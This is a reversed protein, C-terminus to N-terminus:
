RARACLIPGLLNVELQEQIRERTTAVLLDPRNVAANNVWGDIKGAREQFRAVARAIEDADRVDFQLTVCRDPYRARLASAGDGSARHNLGVVAGERACAAGIALGIGSNAGTVVVAKGDLM